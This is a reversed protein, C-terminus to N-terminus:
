EEVTNEYAERLGKKFGERSNYNVDFPRGDDSIYYAPFVVNARRNIEPSVGNYNTDIIEHIRKEIEEADIYKSM